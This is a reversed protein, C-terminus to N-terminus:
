QRGKLLAPRVRETWSKILNWDRHDGEGGMARIVNQMPLPMQEFVAGAMPVDGGFMGVDVPEVDPARERVPDLYSLVQSRSEATDDKMTLCVVFYAVPVQRLRRRYREVFRLFDRHPRGIRIATGAIVADYLGIGDVDSAARVDVTTEDDRLAAGIAEAVEHTSGAWSAYAVLVTAKM